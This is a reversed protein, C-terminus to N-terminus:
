KKILEKLLGAVESSPVLSKQTIPDYFVLGLEATSILDNEQDSIHIAIKYGKRFVEIIACKLTVVSNVLVPKFFDCKINKTITDLKNIGNLKSVIDREWHNERCFEVLRIIGVYSLRDEGDVVWEQLIEVKIGGDTLCAVGQQLVENLLVPRM